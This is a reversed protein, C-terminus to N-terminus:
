LTTNVSWCPDRSKGRGPHVSTSLASLIPYMQRRCSRPSACLLACAISASVQWSALYKHRLVNQSPFIWKLNSALRHCKVCQSELLSSPPHRHPGTANLDAHGLTPCRSYSSLSLASFIRFSSNACIYPLEDIARFRYCFPPNTSVRQRWAIPFWDTVALSPVSDFGWKETIRLPCVTHLSAELKRSRGLISSIPMAATPFSSFPVM